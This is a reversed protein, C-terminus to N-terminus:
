PDQEKHRYQPAFTKARRLEPFVVTWIATVVIAGAGGLAVAWIPGLLAAAMGARMEGLENSASIALGSISSVRGRKDDPTNLQVLTSRIFVSVQDAAGLLALMALSLPFSTSLGFVLTGFGYVAVGWLMKAGVNRRLPAFSLWLAVLAAGLGSAGRLLGLGEDGVHLVDYAFAPLMATAGGLLVAFLDLTVCGLLFRERWVFQAGEAMQRIPHQDSKPPIAIPRIALVTGIAIVLLVSAYWYPLAPDSALLFGATAPGIVAASQWAISSFAIARPLAAAPVVNPVIASVSPGIFVRAGGHAAALAFMLPLSLFGYTNALALTLAISLDIATSAAAVFRRDMRDALLGAVPTLLLFPIFQALGLLGLLFAAEKPAMGEVTRAYQYVQAGIIVVVAITANVSLFRTLWILRYDRIRLPHITESM